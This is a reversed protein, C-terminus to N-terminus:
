ACEWHSIARKLDGHKRWSWNRWGGSKATIWVWASVDCALGLLLLWLPIFVQYYSITIIDQLRCGLLILFALKLSFMALCWLKRGYSIESADFGNKRHQILKTIIFCLALADFVFLPIFVLFWNWGAENEIRVVLFIMFLLLVCWVGLVRQRMAM